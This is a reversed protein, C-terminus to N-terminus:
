EPCFPVGAAAAAVLAAAQASHDVNASFSPPDIAPPPPASSSSSRRDSLPFAVHKQEKPVGARLQPLKKEHLHLQGSVLLEAIEHLVSDNSSRPLPLSFQGEVLDRLIRMELPDDKFQQLWLQAWLRSKEDELREPSDCNPEQCFWWEYKGLPFL